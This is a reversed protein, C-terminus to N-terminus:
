VSKLAHCIAGYAEVCLKFKEEAYSQSPGQHKDPHWKLASARFASKVDDLKLPGRPPLGLTRRHTDSIIETPEDELDSENWIRRQKNEGPEDKWEFEPTPDEVYEDWSSFGWVFGSRGGFANQFISQRPEFDYDDDFNPRNNRGKKGGRKGKGSSSSCQSKSKGSNRNATKGTRSGIGEDQSHLPKGFLLHDKLAKKTDARKQRVAFRINTKSQKRDGGGDVFTIRPSRAKALSVATSHFSSRLLIVSRRAAAQM